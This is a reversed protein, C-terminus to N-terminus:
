SRSPDSSCRIEMRSTEFSWCNKDGFVLWSNRTYFLLLFFAFNMTSRCLLKHSNKRFKTQQTHDWRTHTEKEMYLETTCACSVQDQDVSFDITSKDDGSCVRSSMGDHDIKWEISKECRYLKLDGLLWICWWLRAPAALFDPFFYFRESWSVLGDSSYSFMVDISKSSGLDRKATGSCRFTM